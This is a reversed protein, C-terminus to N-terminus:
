SKTKPKFFYVVALSIVAGFLVDSLYHAGIRVRSFATVAIWILLAAKFLPQMRRYKEPLFRFYYSIAYIAAANATHGSPFSFFGNFGQPLYWPTFLSLDGDLQRFRVRGWCLKLVWIIVFVAIGVYACRCATDFLAHLTEESLRAAFLFFLAAVISGLAVAIINLTASEQFIGYDVLYDGVGGAAFGATGVCGILTLIALIVLKKSAASRKVFYVSMLAFNFSTFLIAPLEGVVELVKGYVSQGDAVSLSIKLDYATAIGLLVLWLIGLFWIFGYKKLTKMFYLYPRSLGRPAHDEGTRNSDSFDFDSFPQASSARMM